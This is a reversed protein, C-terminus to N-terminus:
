LEKMMWITCGNHGSNGMAKNLYRFGFKEYLPIASTLEPMTELYMSEYGLIKAQSICKEILMKGTGKGRSAPSLYLKVLECTNHPLGKTPYIGSGGVLGNDHLAVFYAARDHQFAEYLHDTEDDYFVTGPKNAKFETLAERIIKALEKNDEPKITRVVINKVSYM